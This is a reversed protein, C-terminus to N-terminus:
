NIKIFNFEEFHFDPNEINIILSKVKDDEVNFSVKGDPLSKLDRMRIRFTDKNYHKLDGIFIKSHLMDLVMSGKELIVEAKGYLESEYVGTYNDTKLSQKEKEDPITIREPIRKAKAYNLYINFWDKSEGILFEDLLYNKLAAYFVTNTNTLVIFGLDKEPVICLYSIIGDYGGSHGLAKFGNYDFVSWGLGYGNFFTNLDGNNAFENVSFNVHPTRMKIIEGQNIITDGNWVGKNLQFKIYKSMDKINSIIAGAAGINDWNMFEIPTNVSDSEWNHPKTIDANEPIQTFSTYSNNMGLKEFFNQKIYEDWSIGSVKEIVEGAAIYMINSYGFKTRFEHEPDLMAARKVVEVRSYDSGYWLLDGSFTKLGSRHSLADSITFHDTVYSDYLKFYSLHDKVKDDWSMKGESVLKAISASTFSKSISAVPYLTTSNLEEKTESNKVGYAEALILSDKYVIGVTVGPINWDKQAQEITESISQLKQDNIEQAASISILFSFLLTFIINSKM